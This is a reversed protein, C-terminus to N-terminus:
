PFPGSGLERVLARVREEDIVAEGGASSHFELAGTRRRLAAVNEARVGGGPMVALRGRARDVLGALETAGELATDAHGSTLVRAVGLEVLADLAFGPDPTLDFARHFTVPLREAREILLQMAFDEVCGDTDLVGFVLGNMGCQRALDIEREMRALEDEGYRFDGPRPRIMAVIPLTCARRTARMLREDPTLGGVSLDACLEIRQAGGREAIAAARASEVCVELLPATPATV